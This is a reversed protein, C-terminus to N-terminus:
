SNLFYQALESRKQIESPIYTTDKKLPQNLDYMGFATRKFSVDIGGGPNIGPILTPSSVVRSLDLLKLHDSASVTIQCGGKNATFTKTVTDIYGFFLPIFKFEGSKGNTKYANLVGDQDRSNHNLESDGTRASRSKGFVMIEDMPEWDAKEAFRWGYKSERTKLLNKFQSNAANKSAWNDEGISWLKGNTAAAEALVAPDNPSVPNKMGYKTTLKSAIETKRNISNGNEEGNEDISLWGNLMENWDQWGFRDQDQKEACVVREGGRITVSCSGPRKGYVSSSIRIGTFNNVQYVRIYNEDPLIVKGSATTLPKGDKDVRQQATAAYYPKKRIIVVYDQKFNITKLEAPNTQTSDLKQVNNYKPNTEKIYPSSSNADVSSIQMTQNKLIGETNKTDAM